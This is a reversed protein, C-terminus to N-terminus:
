AQYTYNEDMLTAFYSFKNVFHLDPSHISHKSIRFYLTVLGIIWPSNKFNIKTKKFFSISFCLLSTILIFNRRIKFLRIWFFFFFFWIFQHWYCRLALCLLSLTTCFAANIVADTVQRGLLGTSSCMPPAWKSKVKFHFFLVGNAVKMFKTKTYTSTPPHGRLRILLQNKLVKNNNHYTIIKM